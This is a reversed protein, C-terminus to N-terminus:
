RLNFIEPLNNVIYEEYVMFGDERTKIRAFGYSNFKVEDLAIEKLPSVSYIYHGDPNFIDIEYRDIGAVRYVALFGNPLNKINKIAVLNDPFSDIMWKEPEDQFFSTLIKKKDGGTISVKNYPREVVYETEGSLNKVCIKYETNLCVLIRRNFDDFTYLINPVGWPHTYGANGGKKEIWGVNKRQFFITEQFNEITESDMSILIINNMRGNDKRESKEVFFRNEDVFIRPYLGTKREHLLNGNKEFLALKFDGAVFIHNKVYFPNLFRNNLFEGPGQGQKTLNGLYTNESNFRHVESGRSSYFMVEGDSNRKFDIWRLGFEETDYPNLERIREIELTIHGNLPLEPNKVHVIGDIIEKNVPINPKRQSCGSFVLLIMLILLHTRM